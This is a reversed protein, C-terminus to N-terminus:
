KPIQQTICHINGGGLLIDRAYVPIIERDSCWKKMLSVAHNDSAENEGGFVPMLIANNTFYFNVYSAALAEGIEREDEGEEFVLGDLDGQEICIQADPIPLKHVILRRGFADTKGELYKLAARVIEYQPSQPDDTWALILEGPKLFACINDVHGNTEDGLLGTPLWLIKSVGLREKLVDELQEKNLDSNRGPSLLCEATTLLTGCGDTHISGGELIFPSADIVPYGFGECFAKAFADDNEYDTYLGDYEGGWANFKWSIGYNEGEFSVFTPGIDRAWADDTEIEFFHIRDKFDPVAQIDADSFIMNRADDAEHPKVALYLDESKIVSAFIKIFAARAAAAKHPWSGPRSPWIMITGTHPEFEGPTRYGANGNHFVPNLTKM